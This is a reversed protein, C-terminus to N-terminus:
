EVSEEKRVAELWQELAVNILNNLSRRQKAAHEELARRLQPSVFRLLYALSQEDAAQPNGEPGDPAPASDKRRSSAKKAM